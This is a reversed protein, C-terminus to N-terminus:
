ADPRVPDPATDGAAIAAAPRMGDPPHTGDFTEWARLKAKVWERAERLLARRESRAAPYATLYAQVVRARYLTPLWPHLYAAYAELQGLARVRQRLEVPRWRLSDLDLFHLTGDADVMLNSHNLDPHNLGAQHLVGVAHGLQRALAGLAAPDGKRAYTAEPLPQARDLFVTILYAERVVGGRRREVTALPAPTHLGANLVAEAGRLARLARSGRVASGLASGLGRWGYRKVAVPTPAGAVALTATHISTIPGDKLTRGGAALDGDVLAVVDEPRVDDRHRVTRGAQVTVRLPKM